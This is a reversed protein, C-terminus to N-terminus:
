TYPSWLFEPENLGNNLSINTLESTYRSFLDKFGNAYNPGNLLDGFSAIDTEWDIYWHIPVDIHNSQLFQIFLNAADISANVFASRAFPKTVDPNPMVYTKPINGVFLYDFQRLYDKVFDLQENNLVIVGNEKRATIGLTLSEIYNQSGSTRFDQVIRDLWNRVGGFQPSGKSSNIELFLGNPSTM